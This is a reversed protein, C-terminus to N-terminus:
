SQASVFAGTDLDVIEPRLFPGPKFVLSVYVFYKTGDVTIEQSLKDYLDSKDTPYVYTWSGEAKYKYNLDKYKDCFSLKEDDSSFKFDSKDIQKKLDSSLMSYDIYDGLDGIGGCKDNMDDYFKYCYMKKAYSWAPVALLVVVAAAIIRKLIKKKSRM